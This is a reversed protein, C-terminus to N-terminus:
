ECDGTELPENNLLENRLPELLARYLVRKEEPVDGEEIGALFLYSTPVGLAECVREAAGKPPWSRGTEWLSVANTSTGCREALQGQTMGQKLRLTKIAIGLDM